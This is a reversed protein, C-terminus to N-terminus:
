TQVQDETEKKDILRLLTYQLLICAKQNSRAVHSQTPYYTGNMRTRHLNVITEALCPIDVFNKVYKLDISEVTPDFARPGCWVIEPLTLSPTAAPILRAFVM